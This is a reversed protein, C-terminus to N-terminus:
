LGLLSMLCPQVYNSLKNGLTWFPTKKAQSGTPHWSASCKQTTWGDMHRATRKYAGDTRRDPQGDTPGMRGDTQSDTRIGWRTVAIDPSGRPPNTDYRASPYGIKHLHVLNQVVDGKIPWNGLDEKKKIPWNGLGEKEKIPREKAGM